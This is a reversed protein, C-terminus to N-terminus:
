AVVSAFFYGCDSAVVKNDWAMEAEVRDARLQDMRFKVVGVDAGFGRSIGQWVFTYGASPALLSPSPAAYCLLAHKGQVFSYAATEAEVNTAKIAECVEVRDLDFLQALQERTVARTAGGVYKLRDVIDPHDQLKIFVDYGLCLCNPKFGTSALITRVGTRVDAIPDSNAYDSWLNTPTSDTAWVSTAFYDAAWQIEQRLLLRQTVFETADRDPNLPQDTNLRTNDDIDKHFAYPKCMYTGSGLNYGGGASESAPARPKAEDRFWDNKTYTFYADGQKAVRVIPFVRSAVFAGARQIYAVSINTLPGNIHVQSPTPQPM